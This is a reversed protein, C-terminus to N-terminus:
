WGVKMDNKLWNTVAESTTLANIEGLKTAEVAFANGVHSMFSMLAQGLITATLTIYVGDSIKWGPYESLGNEFMKSISNLRLEDKEESDWRQGNLMFGGYEVQKRYDKLEQSATNKIDILTLEKWDDGVLIWKGSEDTPPKTFVVNVNKPPVFSGEVDGPKGDVYGLFIGNDDIQTYEM